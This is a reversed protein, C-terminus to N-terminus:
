KTLQLARAHKRLTKLLKHNLSILVKPRDNGLPRLTIPRPVMHSVQTVNLLESHVAAHESQHGFQLRSITDQPDWSIFTYCVATDKEFRELSVAPNLIPIIILPHVSASLLCSIMGERLDRYCRHLKSKRTFSEAPNCVAPTEQAEIAETSWTQQVNHHLGKSMSFHTSCLTQSQIPVSMGDPPGNKLKALCPTLHLYLLPSESMYISKQRRTQRSFSSNSTDCRTGASWKQIYVFAKLNKVFSLADSSTKTRARFIQHTTHLLLDHAWWWILLVLYCLCCM